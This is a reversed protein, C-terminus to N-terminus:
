LFDCYTKHNNWKQRETLYIQKITNRDRETRWENLQIHKVECKARGEIEEETKYWKEINVINKKIKTESIKDKTKIWM